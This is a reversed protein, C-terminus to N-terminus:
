PKDADLEFEKDWQWNNYSISRGRIRIEPQPLSQDIKGGGSFGSYGTEEAYRWALAQYEFETLGERWGPKMIVRVEIIAGMGEPKDNDCFIRDAEQQESIQRVLLKISEDREHELKDLISRFYENTLFQLKNM